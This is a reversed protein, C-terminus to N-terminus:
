VELRRNPLKSPGAVGEVPNRTEVGFAKQKMSEPDRQLMIENNERIERLFAGVDHGKRIATVLSDVLVDVGLYRGVVDALM